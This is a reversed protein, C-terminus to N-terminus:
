KQTKKKEKGDLRKLMRFTSSSIHSLKRDCIFHVTPIDLGLDENWYQQNMEYQLDHGNRLGRIIADIKISPGGNRGQELEKIFDVLLGSFHMLEVRPPNGNIWTYEPFGLLNDFNYDWTVKEPNRGASVIVKDFVSLAKKLIDKHGEHFPNFSGPYLGIKM